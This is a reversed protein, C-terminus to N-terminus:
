GKSQTPTNAPDTHTGQIASEVLALLEEADFPKYLIAFAGLDRARSHALTDQHATIFIIPLAPAQKRAIKQLEWGDIGPMRVDTILCCSLTLEDAKLLDEASSFLRADIGASALLDAVSERIRPDDDVVAVICNPRHDRM